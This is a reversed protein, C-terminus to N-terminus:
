AAAEPRHQVLDDIYAALDGCTKLRARLENHEARVEIRFEEEVSFLIEIMQLSDIALSELTADARLSEPQLGFDRQLLKALREFTSM